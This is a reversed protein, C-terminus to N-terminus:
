KIYITSEHVHFECSLASSSKGSRLKALVCQCMGAKKCKPVSFLVLASCTSVTKFLSIVLLFCLFAFFTAYTSCSFPGQKCYSTFCPPPANGQKVENPAHTNPSESQDIVARQMDHTSWPLMMFISKPNCFCKPSYTFECIPLIRM